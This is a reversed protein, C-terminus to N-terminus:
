TDLRNPLARAAARGFASHISCITQDDEKV